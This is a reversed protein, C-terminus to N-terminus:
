GSAAGKSASATDATASPTARLRHRDTWTAWLGPGNDQGPMLGSIRRVGSAPGAVLGLRLEEFALGARGEWASVASRGLHCATHLLPDNQSAQHAREVRDRAEELERRALAAAM